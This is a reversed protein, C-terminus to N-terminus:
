MHRGVGLEITGRINPVMHVWAEGCVQTLYFLSSSGPSPPRLFSFELFPSLIAPSILGANTTNLSSTSSHEGAPKNTKNQARRGGAKCM